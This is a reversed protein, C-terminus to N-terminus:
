SIDVAVATLANQETALGLKINYHFHSYVPSAKGQGGRSSRPDIARGRLGSEGPVYGPTHWPTRRV